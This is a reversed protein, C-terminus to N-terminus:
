GARVLVLECWLYRLKRIYNRKIKEAMLRLKHWYDVNCVPGLQQKGNAPLAHFASLLSAQTPPRAGHAGRPHQTGDRPPTASMTSMPPTTM